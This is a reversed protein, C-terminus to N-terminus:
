YRLLTLTVKDNKSIATLLGAATDAKGDVAIIRDNALFTGAPMDKAVGDLLDQIVLGHTDMSKDVKFGARKGKKELVVEKREPRHLTLELTENDAIMKALASAKKAEGDVKIVRDGIQVNEKALAGGADVRRIVCFDTLLTELGAGLKGGAAAKSVNITYPNSSEPAKEKVEKVEMKVETKVETKAEQAADKLGASAKMDPEAMPPDEEQTVNPASAIIVTTAEGEDVGCCCSM